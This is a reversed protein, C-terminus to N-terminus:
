ATIAVTISVNGNGSESNRSVLRFSYKEDSDRNHQLSVSNPLTVEHTNGDVCAPFTASVFRPSQSVGYWGLSRSRTTPQVSCSVLENQQKIVSPDAYRIFTPTWEVIIDSRFINKNSLSVKIVIPVCGPPTTPINAYWESVARGDSPPLNSKTLSYQGNILGGLFASSSQYQIYPGPFISDEMTFQQYFDTAAITVSVSSPNALCDANACCYWGPSCCACSTALRNDKLILGGSKSAIAM